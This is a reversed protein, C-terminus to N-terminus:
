VVRLEFNDDPYEERYKKLFESKTKCNLITMAKDYCIRSVTVVAMNVYADDCHSLINNLDEIPDAKEM